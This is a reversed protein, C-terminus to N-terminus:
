SVAQQGMRAIVSSHHRAEQLLVDLSVAGEIAVGEIRCLPLLSSYM